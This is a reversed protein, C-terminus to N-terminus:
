LDTFLRDVPLRSKPLRANWDDSGRYGLAVLVLPRVGKADLGLETGLIESDFGEMPCADLNLAAAGLLLFGLALYVQKEMWPPLDRLINRHLDVYTARGKRQKELDEPLPFRGDQQEQGLIAALHVDDMDTRVCLVVVHSANQIKPANYAYIGTAAKAIRAKGTASAAMIFHWPQSNVSSPCYRLLIRLQAFVAEPIKRAPDFGKTTHRSTALPAIEM